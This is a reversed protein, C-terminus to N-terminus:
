ENNKEREKMMKVILIIIVLELVIHVINLVIDIMDFVEMNVVM